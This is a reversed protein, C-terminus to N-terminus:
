RIFLSVWQSDMNGYNIQVYNDRDPRSHEHDFGIWFIHKITEKQTFQRISLIIIRVSYMYSNM